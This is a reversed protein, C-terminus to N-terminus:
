QVTLFSVAAERPRFPLVVGTPQEPILTHSEVITIYDAPPVQGYQKVRTDFTSIAAAMDHRNTTTIGHDFVDIIELLQSASMSARPTTETASNDRRRKFGTETYRALSHESLQGDRKLLVDEHSITADKFHSFRCSLPGGPEVEVAQAIVFQGVCGHKARLVPCKSQEQSLRSYGGTIPEAVRAMVPQGIPFQSLVDLLDIGRELRLWPDFDRRQTRRDKIVGAGRGALRAAVNKAMTPGLLITSQQEFM